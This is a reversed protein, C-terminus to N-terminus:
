LHATPASCWSTWPFVSSGTCAFLTWYQFALTRTETFSQLPPLNQSGKVGCANSKWKTTLIVITHMHIWSNQAAACFSNTGSSILNGVASQWLSNWSCPSAKQLGETLKPYFPPARSYRRLVALSSLSDVSYGATSVELIADKSLM